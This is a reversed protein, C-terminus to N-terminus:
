IMKKKLKLLNFIEEQTILPNLSLQNVIEIIYKKIDDNSIGKLNSIFFSKNLEIQNLIEKHTM